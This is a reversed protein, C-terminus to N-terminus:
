SIALKEQRRNPAPISPKDPSKKASLLQSIHSQVTFTSCFWFLTSFSALFSLLAFPFLLVPECKEICTVAKVNFMAM